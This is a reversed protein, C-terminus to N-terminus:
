LLTFYVLSVVVEIAHSFVEWFDDFKMFLVNITHPVCAHFVALYLFLILQAAIIADFICGDELEQKVLLSHPMDDCHPAFGADLGLCCAVDDPEDVIDFVLDVQKADRVVNLVMGLFEVNGPENDWRVMLERLNPCQDDGHKKDVSSRIHWVFSAKDVFTRHLVIYNVPNDINEEHAIDKHVKQLCSLFIVAQNDHTWLENGSIVEGLPEREIQDRDKRKLKNLM